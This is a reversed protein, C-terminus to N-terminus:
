SYNFIKQKIAQYATPITLTEITSASVWQMTKLISKSSLECLYVKMKWHRHSFVHETKMLFQIPDITLNYKQQFHIIFDQKNRAKVGPFEWLGKLLTEETRQNMLVKNKNYIIGIYYNEIIPKTKKTKIPLESQKKEAFGKCDEQLPCLLCRPNQPICILAGLEMLAQNFDSAGGEPIYYRVIDEIKKKSIQLAVDEEICFFRSMVRLVNGDVAPYNKNYAISLIAGATYPGIGPLDIVNKYTKPFVGNYQEVIIKSTKHINRARSYYGLGEWHKLVDEIPSKAIDFITPFRKMFKQYYAIVTEVRTQQLMIESIWIDYPDKSKRWPLNRQNKQYWRILKLVWQENEDYLM